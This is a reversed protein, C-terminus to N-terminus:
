GSHWLDGRAPEGKTGVRVLQWHAGSGRCVRLGKLAVAETWVRFRKAIVGGVREVGFARVLSNGDVGVIM